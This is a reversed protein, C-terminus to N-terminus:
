KEKKIEELAKEYLELEDERESFRGLPDLQVFSGDKQKNSLIFRKRGEHDTHVGEIFMNKYYIPQEEVESLIGKVPIRIGEEKDAGSENSMPKPFQESM